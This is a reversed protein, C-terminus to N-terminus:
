TNIISLRERIVDLPVTKMIFSGPEEVFTVTVKKGSVKKDHAMIEVIRDADIQSSTPLNLKNLVTKVRPRLGESCMPLMGIAVCEGHLLGHLDEYSEIAHGITHGFNLIRRLGTEKEDLEVVRAKANIARRIIEDIIRKSDEEEFLKFLESDSTLSIKVAEALGNSFQRDSLSELTDPDILVAKPQYFAGVINKVGDLDIATKGGVSSDVQSLVTTPINYFDIGRMYTAATFGALDGIVGGGVAVVCDNRSFNSGLMAKLLVELQSFSKSEEGSPIIAIYANDCQDAITQAYEIPVGTDTVVLVKRKLDIFNGASKLSGRQIHVQYTNNGLNVTISM